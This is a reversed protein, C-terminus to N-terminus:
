YDYARVSSPQSFPQYTQYSLNGDADKIELCFSAHPETWWGIVQNGYTPPLYSVLIADSNSKSTLWSLKWGQQWNDTNVGRIAATCQNDVTQLVTNNFRSPSPRLVFVRWDVAQNAKSTLFPM